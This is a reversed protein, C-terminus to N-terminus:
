LGGIFVRVSVCEGIYNFAKVQIFIQKCRMLQQVDSNTLIWDYVMSIDDNFHHHIGYFNSQNPLLHKITNAYITVDRQDEIGQLMTSLLTDMVKSIVIKYKENIIRQIHHMWLQEIETTNTSKQPLLPPAPLTANEAHHVHWRLTNSLDLTPEKDINVALLLHNFILVIEVDIMIVGNCTMYINPESRIIIFYSKNYAVYADFGLQIFMSSMLVCKELESACKRLFVSFLHCSKSQITPLSKSIKVVDEFASIPYNHNLHLLHCLFVSDLTDTKVMIDDPYGLNYALSQIKINPRQIQKKFLTSPTIGQIYFKCYDFIMNNMSKLEVLENMIGTYVQQNKIVVVHMQSKTKKFNAFDGVRLRFSQNGYIIWCYHSVKSSIFKVFINGDSHLQIAPKKLKSQKSKRSKQFNMEKWLIDKVLEIDYDHKELLDKIHDQKESTILDQEIEHLKEVPKTRMPRKLLVLWIYLTYLIRFDFDVLGPIILYM